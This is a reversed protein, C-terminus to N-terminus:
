NAILGAMRERRDAVDSTQISRTPRDGAVESLTATVQAARPAPPYSRGAPRGLRWSVEPWLDSSIQLFIVPLTWLLDIDNTVDQLDRPGRAASADTVDAHRSRM